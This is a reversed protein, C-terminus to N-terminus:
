KSSSASAAAPTPLPVQTRLGPLAMESLSALIQKISAGLDPSAVPKPCFAEELKEMSVSFSQLSLMISALRGMLEAFVMQVVNQVKMIMEQFTSVAGILTGSLQRLSGGQTQSNPAQGEVHITPISVGSVVATSM